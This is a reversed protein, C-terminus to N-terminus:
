ADVPQERLRAYQDGHAGRLGHKESRAVEAEEEEEEKPEEEVVEEEEPEVVAKWHKAFWEGFGEDATSMDVYVIQREAKAMELQGGSLTKGRSLGRKFLRLKGSTGPPAASPKRSLPQVREQRVLHKYVVEADIIPDYGAAGQKQQPRGDGSKSVVTAFHARIADVTEIDVLKRQRLVAIVFDAERMVLSADGRGVAEEQLLSSVKLEYQDLRIERLFSTQLIARAATLAAVAALPMYFTYLVQLLASDANLDGGATTMCGVTWYIADVVGEHHFAMSLFIGVSGVLVVLMLAMFYGQLATLIARHTPTDTDVGGAEGASTGSKRAQSHRGRAQSGEVPPTKRM